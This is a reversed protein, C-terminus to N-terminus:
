IKEVQKEQIFLFYNMEPYYCFLEDDIDPRQKVFILISNNFIKKAYGSGDDFILGNLDLACYWYFNARPNVPVKM